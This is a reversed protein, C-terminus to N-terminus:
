VNDCETTFTLSFTLQTPLKHFWRHFEMPTLGMPHQATNPLGQPGYRRIRYTEEAIALEMGAIKM